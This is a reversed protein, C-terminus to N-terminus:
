LYLQKLKHLDAYIIDSDNEKVEFLNSKVVNFSINEEILINRLLMEIKIPIGSGVNYVEGPVGKEMIKIYHQVAIKIDIYDRKAKLNGLSIEKSIGNKIKEIEDYVKGIFLKSSIGKGYLNFPRAMVIDLSHTKVYYDMLNKQFIKTIGYSSNPTLIFDEKVPCNEKNLLGYEAASGILLVRTQNSYKNVSDLINKTAKVNNDYDINYDNSFSGALHFIQKPKYKEIIRSIQDFDTLDCNLFVKNEENSNIYSRSLLIKKEPIFKILEKGTFGSSGTILISM